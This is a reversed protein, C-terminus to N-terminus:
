PRIGLEQPSFAQTELKRKKRAVVPIWVNDEKLILTTTTPTGSGGRFTRAMLFLMGKFGRREDELHVRQGPTWLVGGSTRHGRVEAQYTLGDLRGDALEKKGRQSLSEGSIADSVTLIKPRYVKVDPDRVVTRMANQGDASSTGHAQGLITIESYRRAISASRRLRSVNNGKGDHRMVLSAVPPADYDPGGVILTGDPAFWPWLGNAQAAKELADWATDGPEISVKEAVGKGRPDVRVKSIGLPNVVSKVIQDLSMEKAAFIPASCDVLISAGDRGSMFLTATRGGVDDDVDDVSGTMAIDAGVRVEVRAGPQVVAPLEGDPLGLQVNWAAAPRTMDSEVSYRTWKGHVRGGILLSVPEIERALDRSDDGASNRTAM